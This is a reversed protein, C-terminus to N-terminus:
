RHNKGTIIPRFPKEEEDMIEPIDKYGLENLMDFIQTFTVESDKYTRHSPRDYLPYELVESQLGEMVKNFIFELGGKIEYDRINKKIFRKLHSENILVTDDIYPEDSKYKYGLKM